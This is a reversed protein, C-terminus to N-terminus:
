HKAGSKPPAMLLFALASLGLVAAFVFLPLTVSQSAAALGAFGVPALAGGLTSCAALLGAIAGFARVGFYRAALYPLVDSEGGISLGLLLASAMAM